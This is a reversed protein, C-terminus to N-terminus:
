CEHEFNTDVNFNEVYIYIDGEKVNDNNESSKSVNQKKDRSNNRLIQCMKPMGNRQSQRSRTQCGQYMRSGHVNTQMEDRIGNYM